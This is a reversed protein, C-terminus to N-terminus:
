LDSGQEVMMLSAEKQLLHPCAYLYAHEVVDVYLVSPLLGSVGLGSYFLEM